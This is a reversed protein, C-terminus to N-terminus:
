INLPWLILQVMKLFFLDHLTKVIKVFSKPPPVKPEGEGGGNPSGLPEGKGGGNWLPIYNPESREGMKSYPTHPIYGGPPHIVWKPHIWLSTFVKAINGM